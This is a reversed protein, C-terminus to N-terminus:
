IGRLYAAHLRHLLPHFGEVPSICAPEIEKEAPGLIMRPIFAVAAPLSLPTGKNLQDTHQSAASSVQLDKRPVRRTKRIHAIEDRQVTIGGEVHAGGPFHHPRHEMGQVSGPYIRTQPHHGVSIPQKLWPDPHLKLSCVARMERTDKGSLAAHVRVTRSGAVHIM